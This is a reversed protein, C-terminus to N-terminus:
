AREIDYSIKDILQTTYESVNQRMLAYYRVQQWICLAVVPIFFVLFLIVIKQQIGLRKM